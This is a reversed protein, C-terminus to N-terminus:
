YKYEKNKILNYVNIKKYKLNKEPIKILHNIKTCLNIMNLFLNILFILIIMTKMKTIIQKKLNNDSNKLIKTQKIIILNEKTNILKKNMPNQFM